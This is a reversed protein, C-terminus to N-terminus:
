LIMAYRKLRVMVELVGFPGRLKTLGQQKVKPDDGLGHLIALDQDMEEYTEYPEEWTVFGVLRRQFFEQTNSSGSNETDDKDNFKIPESKVNGTKTPKYNTIVM